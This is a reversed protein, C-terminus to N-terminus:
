GVSSCHRHYDRNARERRGVRGNGRNKNKYTPTQSHCNPCLLCLNDISNNYANGDKHELELVIPKGNWEKIGCEWCSDQQSHLHARMVKISVDAGEDLWSKIKEQHRSKGQCKNSCYIGFSNRSWTHPKGCQQCHGQKM